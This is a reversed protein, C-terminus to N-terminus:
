RSLCDVLSGLNSKMVMISQADLQGSERKAQIYSAIHFTIELPLNKITPYHSSGPAFDPVHILLNHMDSFNFGDLGRLYYKTSVSFALVLNMAGCRECHDKEDTAAVGIWIIRSLNRSCTFITGWLKRAEWHRDNATNTRFVLLLSMVTAMVTIFVPGIGLNVPVFHFTCTWAAGWFTYM